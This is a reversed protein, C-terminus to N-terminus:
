ACVRHCRWDYSINLTKSITLIVLLTPRRPIRLMGRSLSAHGYRSALPIGWLSPTRYGRCNLTLVGGRWRQQVIRANCIDGRGSCLTPWYNSWGGRWTCATTVCWCGASGWLCVWRTANYGAGCGANSSSGSREITKFVQRGGDRIWFGARDNSIWQLCLSCFHILSLPLPLQLCLRHRCRSWHDGATAANM